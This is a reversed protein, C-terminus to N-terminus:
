QDYNVGTSRKIFKGSGIEGVFRGEKIIVQGRSFVMYPMGKVEIDEFPTYDVSM